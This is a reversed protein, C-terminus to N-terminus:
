GHSFELLHATLDDIVKVIDVYKINFLRTNAYDTLNKDFEKRCGVVIQCVQQFGFTGFSNDRIKHVEQEVAEVVCLKLASLRPKLLFGFADSAKADFSQFPQASSRCIFSQLAFM